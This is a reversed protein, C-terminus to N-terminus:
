QDNKGTNDFEVKEIISKWDALIKPKKEELFNAESWYNEILLDLFNDLAIAQFQTPVTTKAEIIKNKQLKKLIRYVKRKYIKLENSIDLAKKPGYRLLLYVEAEQQSFGLEVLTKLMWEQTMQDKLRSM